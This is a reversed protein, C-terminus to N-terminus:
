LPIAASTARATEAQLAAHVGMRGYDPNYTLNHINIFYSSASVAVATIVSAANKTSYYLCNFQYLLYYM